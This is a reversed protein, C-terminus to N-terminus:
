TMKGTLGALSASNFEFTRCIFKPPTRVNQVFKKGAPSRLAKVSNVHALSQTSHRVSMSGRKASCRLFSLTVSTMKLVTNRCILLCRIGPRPLELHKRKRVPGRAWGAEEMYTLEAQTCM